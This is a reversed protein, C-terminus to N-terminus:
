GRRYPLLKSAFGAGDLAREGDPDPGEHADRPEIRWGFKFVFHHEADWLRVYKCGARLGQWCIYGGSTVRTPRMHWPEYHRLYRPTWYRLRSPEIELDLLEFNRLGNAPNRIAHYRYFSRRSIGHRDIWWQPLSNHSRGRQYESGGHWDEPNLWPLFVRPVDDRDTARYRWMFPVVIFGALATPVKIAIFMAWLLLFAPARGLAAILSTRAM